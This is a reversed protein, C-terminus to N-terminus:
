FKTLLTSRITFYFAIKFIFLFTVYTSFFSSKVWFKQIARFGWSKLVCSAWLYFKSEIFSLFVWILVVECGSSYYYYYYYFIIIIIFTLSPFIIKSLVYLIQLGWVNQTPNSHPLWKAFNYKDTVSFTICVTIMHNLHEVGATRSFLFSFM